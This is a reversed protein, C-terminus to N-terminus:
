PRTGPPSNMRGVKAARVQSSALFFQAISLSGPLKSQDLLKIAGEPCGAVAQQAIEIEAKSQPYPMKVLGHGIADMDFMRQDISYCRLHGQCRDSDIVVKM